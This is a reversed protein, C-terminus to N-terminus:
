LFWLYKFKPACFQLCSFMTSRVIFVLQLWANESSLLFRFVLWWSNLFYAMQNVSDLLNPRWFLLPLYPLYAPLCTFTLRDARRWFLLNCNIASFARVELFPFVSSLFICSLIKLTFFFVGFLCTWIELTWENTYWSYCRLKIRFPRRRLLVAGRTFRRIKFRKELRPLKRQM